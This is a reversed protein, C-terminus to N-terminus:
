RRLNNFYYEKGAAKNFYYEKPVKVKLHYTSVKAQAMRLTLLGIILNYAFPVKVVLFDIMM